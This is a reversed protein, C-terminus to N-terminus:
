SFALPPSKQFQFVVIVIVIVIVRIPWLIRLCLSSPQVEGLRVLTAKMFHGPIESMDLQPERHWCSARNETSRQSQLIFYIIKPAFM